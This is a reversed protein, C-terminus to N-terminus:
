PAGIFFPGIPVGVIPSAVNIFTNPLIPTLRLFIIYFLLDSKRAEVEKSFSEVKGPWLAAAIPRGVIHSASYCFCAGATSTASVLLWGKVPGYLAGALLSLSITGPIACMQMLVYASAWLSLLLRPHRTAYQLAVDRQQLLQALSRPPFAKLSEWEDAQLLCRLSSSLDTFGRNLRRPQEVALALTEPLETAVQLPPLFRSYIYILSCASCAFIAAFALTYARSSPM